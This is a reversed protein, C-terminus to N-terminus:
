NQFKLKKFFLTERRHHPESCRNPVYNKPRLVNDKPTTVSKNSKQFNQTDTCFQKSFTESFCHIQTFVLVKNLLGKYIISSNSHIPVLYFLIAQM